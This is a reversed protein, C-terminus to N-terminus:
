RRRTPGAARLPRAPGYRLVEAPHPPPTETLREGLSQTLGHLLPPDIKTRPRGCPRTEPGAELQEKGQIGTGASVQALFVADTEALSRPSRGSSSSERLRGAPGSRYGSKRGARPGPKAKSRRASRKLRQAKCPYFLCPAASLCPAPLPQAGGLEVSMSQQFSRGQIGSGAALEEFLAAAAGERVPSDM